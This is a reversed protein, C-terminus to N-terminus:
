VIDAGQRDGYYQADKDTNKQVPNPPFPSITPNANAFHSFRWTAFAWRSAATTMYRFEGHLHRDLFEHCTNGREAQVAKFCLRACRSLM